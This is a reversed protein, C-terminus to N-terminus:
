HSRHPKGGVALGLACFSGDRTEIVAREGCSCRRPQAAWRALSDLAFDIRNLKTRHPERAEVLAQRVAEISAPGADPTLQGALDDLGAFELATVVNAFGVPPPRPPPMSVKLAPAGEGLTPGFVMRTM